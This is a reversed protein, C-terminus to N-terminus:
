LINHYGFVGFVLHLFNLMFSTSTVIHATTCYYSTLDNFKIEKGGTQFSFSRSTPHPIFISLSLFIKIETFPKIKGELVVMMYYTVGRGISLILHCPSWPAISHMDNNINTLSPKELDYNIESSKM